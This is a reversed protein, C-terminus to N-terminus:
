ALSHLSNREGMELSWSDMDRRPESLPSRVVAFKRLDIPARILLPLGKEGMLKGDIGDSTSRASM